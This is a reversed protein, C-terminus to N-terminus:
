FRVRSRRHREQRQGYAAGLLFGVVLGVGFLALSPGIDFQDPPAVTTPLSAPPRVDPASATATVEPQATVVASELANLRERLQALQHELAAGGPTPEDADAAPPAPTDGPTGGMMPTALPLTMGAEVKLYAANIYGSEGNALTVRAWQGNVEDVQVATGRPLYVFADSDLGPGRRVNVAEVGQVTAPVPAASASAAALLLLVALAGLLHRPM